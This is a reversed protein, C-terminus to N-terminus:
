QFDSSYRDFYQKLDDPVQKVTIDLRRDLARDGDEDIWLTIKTGDIEEIWGSEWTKDTYHYYIVGCDADWYWFDYCGPMWAWQSKYRDSLYDATYVLNERCLPMENKDETDNAFVQLVGYHYYANDMYVLSFHSDDCAVASFEHPDRGLWFGFCGGALGAVVALIIICAIWKKRKKLSVM